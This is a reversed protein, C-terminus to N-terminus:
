SYRFCLNQGFLRLFLTLEGEFQPLKCGRLVTPSFDEAGVTRSIGAYMAVCVALVIVLLMKRLTSRRITILDGPKATPKRKM